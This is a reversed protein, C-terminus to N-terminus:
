KEQLSAEELAENKELADYPFPAEMFDKARSNNIYCVIILDIVQDVEKKKKIKYKKIYDEKISTLEKTYSKNKVPGSISSIIDDVTSHRVNPATWLENLKEMIEFARCYNVLWKHNKTEILFNICSQLDSVCFVNNTGRQPKVYKKWKEILYPELAILESDNLKKDNLVREFLIEANQSDEPLREKPTMLNFLLIFQM